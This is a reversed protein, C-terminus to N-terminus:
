LPWQARELSEGLLDRYWCQGRRLQSRHGHLRRAGVPPMDMSAVPESPQDVLVFEGCSPRTSCESPVVEQTVL